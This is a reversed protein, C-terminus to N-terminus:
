KMGQKLLRSWWWFPLVWFGAAIALTAGLLPFRVEFPVTRMGKIAYGKPASDQQVGNNKVSVTVQHKEGREPRPDTYTLEYEGLISDFFLRFRQAAQKADASVEAIGGTLNAIQQLRKWDVFDAQFEKKTKVDRWNRNLDARTVQQLGYKQALEGATLGYGLTYVNINKHQQLLSELRQFGEAENGVSHYGDSLLIVAVRPALEKSEEDEKPIPFRTALFNIVTTLPRYINTAACPVREAPPNELYNLLTDLKIDKAAFFQDVEAESDVPHSQERTPCNKNPDSGFPVIAVQTDGAGARQKAIEILSRTAQVSGKLKTTGKSDTRIMSNSYDLLVVIWAPPPTATEPSKWQLSAVEQSPLGEGKVTLRFDTAELGTIPRDQDGKVKVRVTVKDEDVTPRGVVEVTKIASLSPYALCGLIVVSLSLSRIM